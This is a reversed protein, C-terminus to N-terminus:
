RNPKQAPNARSSIRGLLRITLPGAVEKAFDGLGRVTQRHIGPDIFSCASLLLVGLNGHEAEVGCADNIGAATGVGKLQVDRGEVYRAFYIAESRAKCLKLQASM